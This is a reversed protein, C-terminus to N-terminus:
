EAVEELTKIVKVINLHVPCKRLCRGCGVCSYTGDNNDPFYVLKHMFRQRFRETQTPRPQGASMMTFDSYMCSDWCRFRKVSDGNAFEEIDYCQCTPCVFTCTGCGLCAESLTKWEPRDFLAKTKGPGFSSLNLEKLPLRETIQHIEEKASNVETDDCDSLVSLVNTLENGKDTNPEWYLFDGKIWCTVDGKPSAPDIGFTTCFCTESPRSCALSIVTCNNRRKECYTDAPEMLFVRDLIEFSKADCARVGFFAFDEVEDGMGTLEIQKGNVKFGMLNEVQPFFADKASRVTNLNRSLPLGDHWKTFHSQGSEDNAPIFLNMRENISAFLSNLETLAIRKM